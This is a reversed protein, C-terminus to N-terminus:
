DSSSQQTLTVQVTHSSGGRQVTVSITQGPQHSRIAAIVADDGATATSNIATIVDGAKLGAKAAPGGASVSHVIAQDTGSSSAKDTLTVGLLPHVAKGTTILETAVTKAEDIPIAFGVGINGSQSGGSLTDSGLSAIASNIGIVEGSGNVLPGGSNGPNIAADTQIADIVTPNTAAPTGSGGFPNTPQTDDSTVVPRNLASVIGSTVTGSLGLPSGVALVPDGVKVDSDSGLVAPKLGSKAVKIVALDDLSDTGVIRASTSSGDQFTASVSGKGNAAAAVVHNNTLIYGDQRLVIGSGTDSEQAGKVNVSVVSPLLRAAIGALSKPSTALASQSGSAVTLGANSTTVNNSNDNDHHVLAAGLGVGGAGFVFATVAVLAVASNRPRRRPGQPGGTLDEGYSPPSPPGSAWSGPLPETPHEGPAHTPLESTASAADDSATAPDDGATGRADRDDSAGGTLPPWFLEDSMDNRRRPLVMFTGM